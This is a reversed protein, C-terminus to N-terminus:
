SRSYIITYSLRIKVTTRASCVTGKPIFFADGTHFLHQQDNEDILTITGNMVYAFYHYPFPLTESQFVDCEWIGSLFKGINDKYQNMMKQNVDDSVLFPKPISLTHFPKNIDPIVIGEVSPNDPVPENPNESILFFKRLYGSQHWQCDYGKPIIFAEGACAKELKGTKNNKIVAEGELLWMYEDCPYPGATEVMDTTDWVGVYLGINDDAYYEYSNQVPIPSDFMDATLEDPTKGFGDPNTKLHIIKSKKM